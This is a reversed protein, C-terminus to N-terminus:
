RTTRDNATRRRGVSSGRSTAAQWIGDWDPNDAEGGPEILGDYRAGSPNVAFVYGSRGDLFPGLVIRVHDESGLPADRRVSFSVPGSPEPDACVIGITIAKSGALVRVTTRLTAPAGESPDAQRFDDIVGAANWAPEDLAGDIILGAGPLLGAHVEPPENTQGCAFAPVAVAVIAAVVGRVWAAVRGRM